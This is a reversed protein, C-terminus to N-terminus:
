GPDSYRKAPHTYTSAGTPTIVTFSNLRGSVNAWSADGRLWQGSNNPAKPVFGHASTSVDNTTVDTVSLDADAPQTTSPQGSTSIANIWQHLVSAQSKVGGLTAAGPTPLQSAAVSGSIDSFAPQTSSPAGNSGIANIWQHSVSAYSQIGEALVSWFTASIDPQNGTGAQISIYSTGNFQM